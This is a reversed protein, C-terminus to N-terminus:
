VDKVNWIRPGSGPWCVVAIVDTGPAEPYGRGKHGLQHCVAGGYPGCGKEGLYQLESGEKVGGAKQKGPDCVATRPLTSTSAM